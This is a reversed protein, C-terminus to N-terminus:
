TESTVLFSHHIYLLYNVYWKQIGDIYWQPTNANRSDPSKKDSNDKGGSNNWWSSWLSGTNQPVLSISSGEESASDSVPAEKTSSPSSNGWGVGSFRKMISEGTLQPAIKSLLPGSSGSSVTQSTTSRSIAKDRSPQAQANQHLLYSKRDPSLQRMADRQPGKIGLEDMMSEFAISDFEECIESQGDDGRDDKISPYSRITDSKFGPINKEVLIPGSVNKRVAVSSSSTASGGGIWDDFLTSLRNKSNVSESTSSQSKATAFQTASTVAKATGEGEDDPVPEPSLTSSDRHDIVRDSSPAFRSKSTPRRYWEDPVCFRYRMGPTKAIRESIISSNHM